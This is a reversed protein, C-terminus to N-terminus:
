LAASLGLVQDSDNMERRSIAMRNVPLAEEYLSSDRDSYQTSLTVNLFEDPEAYLPEDSEEFTTNTMVPLQDSHVVIAEDYLPEEEDAPCLGVVAIAEDYIPEEDDDSMTSNAYIPMTKSVPLDTTPRTSTSTASVMDESMRQLVDLQVRVATDYLHPESSTSFQAGSNETFGATNKSKVSSRRTPIPGPTVVQAPNTLPLKSTTENLSIRQQIEAIKVAVQNPKPSPIPKKGVKSMRVSNASQTVPLSSIIECEREEIEV